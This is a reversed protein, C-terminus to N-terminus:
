RNAISGYAPKIIRRNLTADSSDIGANRLARRAAKGPMKSQSLLIGIGRDIQEQTLSPKRGGGPRRKRQVRREPSVPRPTGLVREAVGCLERMEQKRRLRERLEPSSQERIVRAMPSSMERDIRALMQQMPSPPKSALAIAQELLSSPERNRDRNLERWIELLPRPM